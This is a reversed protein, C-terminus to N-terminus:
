VEYCEAVQPLAALEDVIEDVLKKAPKKLYGYVKKGKTDALLESLAVMKQEIVPSACLSREIEQMLERMADQAAQTVEKYSLDKQQYLHLLEDQFIENTLKSRMKEIGQETLYGQKPDASWVMMHVHPHHKEDHFAACWRFDKPPIKM